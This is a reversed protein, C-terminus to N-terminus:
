GASRSLIAEILPGKADAYENMDSWAREALGRKLREYADRDEASARLRDRFRLMRATEPDSAAWIHLHVDRAPTRLMRHGPERVRLEYGAGELATVLADNEADDVAVLMDVIPKAALGPVATSGVHEIAIARAGLAAVIREREREFRAPWAPDYAAIVIARPERGGILAREDIM